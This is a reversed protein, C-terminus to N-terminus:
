ISITKYFFNILVNSVKYAVILKNTQDFFLFLIIINILVNLKGIYIFVM